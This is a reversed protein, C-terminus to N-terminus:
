NDEQMYNYNDSHISRVPENSAVPLGPLGSALSSPSLWDDLIKRASKTILAEDAQALLDRLNLPPWDRREQRQCGARLGVGEDAALPFPQVVGSRLLAHSSLLARFINLYRGLLVATVSYRYRIVWGSAQVSSADIQYVILRTCM